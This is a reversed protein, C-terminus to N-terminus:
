SRSLGSFMHETHETGGDPSPIFLVSSEETGQGEPAGFLVSCEARFVVSCCRVENLGEAGRVGSLTHVASFM